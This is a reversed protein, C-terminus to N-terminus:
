LYKNNIMFKVYDFLFLVFGKYLVYIYVYLTHLMYIYICFINKQEGSVLSLPTIFNSRFTICKTKLLMRYYFPFAVQYELFSFIQM